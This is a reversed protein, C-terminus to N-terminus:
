PCIPDCTATACALRKGSDLCMGYSQRGSNANIRAAQAYGSSADASPVSFVFNTSVPVGSFSDLSGITTTYSGNNDLFYRKEASVIEALVSYAEASRANEIVNRYQSMAVVALVGIIVVVIVLEILTFSVDREKSFLRM